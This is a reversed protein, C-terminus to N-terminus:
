SSQPRKKERIIGLIVFNKIKELNAMKQSKKLRDTKGCLKLNQFFYSLQAISFKQQSSRASSPFLNASSLQSGKRFHQASSPPIRNYNQWGFRIIVAFIAAIIRGVSFYFYIKHPWLEALRIISQSSRRDCNPWFSLSGELFVFARLFTLRLFVIM